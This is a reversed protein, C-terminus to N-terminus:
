RKVSAYFQNIFDTAQEIIEEKSKKCEKLRKKPILISGMCKEENCGIKIISKQHLRDIFCTDDLLFKLEVPKKNKCANDEDSCKIIKDKSQRISYHSANSKLVHGNSNKNKLKEATKQVVENKISTYEANIFTKIENLINM